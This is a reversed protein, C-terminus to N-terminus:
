IFYRRRVVFLQWLAQWAAISLLKNNQECSGENQPHKKKLYKGVKPGMFYKVAIDFSVNTISNNLKLLPHLNILFGTGSSKIDWRERGTGKGQLAM